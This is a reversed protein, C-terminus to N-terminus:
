GEVWVADWLPYDGIRSVLGARLPNAIVYRALARLDEDGRIAHDHFGRQWIPATHSTTSCIERATGAKLRQILRSLSTADNLQFLWHLHDPMVVFCKTAALPEMRRLARVVVRGLFTDLFIPRRGDTVTTVLYYHYPLSARGRRLAVQGPRAPTRGM